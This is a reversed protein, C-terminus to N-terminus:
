GRLNNRLTPNKKVSYKKEKNNIRIEINLDAERLWDSELDRIFEKLFLIIEKQKM